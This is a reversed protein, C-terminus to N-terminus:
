CNTRFDIVKRNFHKLELEAISSINKEKARLKAAEIIALYEKEDEIQTWAVIQNETLGLKEQITRDVPFHPPVPIKDLCWQYKLYLNLLKQSVGFNLKIFDFDKAFAEIERINKLHLEDDVSQYYHTQVLNQLHLHLKEKFANRSDEKVEGQYVNARQFAGNITLMWIENEIFAQKMTNM